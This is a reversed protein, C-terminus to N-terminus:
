KIFTVKAIKEDKYSRMNWIFNGQNGHKLSLYKYMERDDTSSVVDNLYVEKQKSSSTELQIKYDKDIALKANVVCLGDALKMSTVGQTNRSQKSNIKSTNFIISKGESSVMIVDIDNESYTIDLLESDTNYCNQLKKNNSIFSKIDVKGLKGNSYATYIYGKTPDTISVVKIVKEDPELQIINPIYQGYSSPTLLDLEYVPLKYRNVKNTLFLLTSKNTTNIDDVISDGERIKHNDSAKLFKKVYGEKTYLLHTNYEEVIDEKEIENKSEVEQEILIDTMRPKGFKNKVERLQEIILNDIYVSDNKHETNTKIEKELEEIKSIRNYIWDKNINVLKITKIYEAQEKNLNFERILNEVAINETKSGRIVKIARDLDKNIVNLGNYKNLTTNLQEIDYNYENIICNHRHQIWKQIITELSMLLPTKNDIDILTFNCSFPKEFPTYKRLKKIFNELNTGKKLYLDLAIGDKDSANHYYTIEKFNGKDIGEEVKSEIDEIYTEYPIEYITVKNEKENFRYKGIINFSGKGTKYIKEFIEKKYPIIGGLSLDPCKITDITKDIDKTRIYSEIGNCVEILNHAPIKSAEGVAISQGTNVLVNPIISSLIIPENETNDFNRKFPVNNKNIGEILYESYKSLKCEIYRPSAGVGEKKRKDGYNGKPELLFNNLSNNAMNKMAKYLPMDGFVYYVMTYAGARLLKIFTKDSTIGNKKLAYIVKRNVPLLGDCVSPLNNLLIEGAYPKFCDEMVNIINKENNYM